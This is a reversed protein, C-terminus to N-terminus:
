TSATTVRRLRRMAMVAVVASVVAVFMTGAMALDIGSEGLLPPSWLWEPGIAAQAGVFVVSDAFAHTVLSPIISRSAFALAGLAIGMTLLSPGRAFGSPHNLHVLWFVTATLGIAVGAGYRQELPAQMYGRFGAEESVGAVISIMILTSYVTWWPYISLDTAEEPIDILRYNLMAFAIIFICVAGCAALAVRWEPGSLRRARLAERRRQSTSAPVWHGGFYRFVVWLYLLGAPVHWPFAPSAGFNLVILANWGLQLVVFVFLGSLLARVAVPIREWARLVWPLPSHQGPDSV